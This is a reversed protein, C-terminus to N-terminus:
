FFFVLKSDGKMIALKHNETTVLVKYTNIQIHVNNISTIKTKTCHL